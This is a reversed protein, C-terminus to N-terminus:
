NNLTKKRRQMSGGIAALGAGFMWVAAPLPVVQVQSNMFNVDLGTLGNVFGIGFSDSALALPTLDGPNGVVNFTFSVIGFDSGADVGLASMGLFISDILGSEASTEDASSFNWPPNVFSTSVHQLVNPNWSLSLGVGDPGLLFQEGVVDVTLSGGSAVTISEGQSFAVVNSLAALAQSSSFVLLGLSCLLSFLYKSGNDM